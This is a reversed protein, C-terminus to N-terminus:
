VIILLLEAVSDDVRSETNPMKSVGESEAYGVTYYM